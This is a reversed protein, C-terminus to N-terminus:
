KSANAFLADLALNLALVNIRPEGLVSFQRPTIQQDILALIKEPQAGRAQAVRHAQLRANAVSIDPDLGSASATVADVPVPVDAALGNGQRYAQTRLAIQDLLKKSTSGQNSAGSSAANYPQDITKSSDAPDAGVTVSPRSHFYRPQAFSQGIVASGVVSDGRQILSGQAQAPFLVKAVGTTLMPYAIGTVLMFLVASVVAPRALGRLASAERSTNSNVGQVVHQM